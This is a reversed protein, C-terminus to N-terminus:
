SLKGGLGFWGVSNLDLDVRNTKAVYLGPQWLKAFKPGSGAVSCCKPQRNPALPLPVGWGFGVVSVHRRCLSVSRTPIISYINHKQSVVRIHRKVHSPAGYKAPVDFLSVLDCAVCM